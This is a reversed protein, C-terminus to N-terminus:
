EAVEKKIFEEWIALIAGALAIPDYKEWESVVVLRSSPGSRGDGPVYERAESPPEPQSPDRLSFHKHANALDRCLKMEVHDEFLRGLAAKSAGGTDLLWDRLHFANEFFAYLFDSQEAPTSAAM